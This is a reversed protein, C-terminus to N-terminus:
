TSFSDRVGALERNLEHFAQDQGHGVAAVPHEIGVHSDTRRHQRRGLVATDTIAAIDNGFIDVNRPVAHVRDAGAFQPGPRHIAALRRKSEAM